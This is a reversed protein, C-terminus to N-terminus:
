KIFRFFWSGLLCAHLTCCIFLMLTVNSQWNIVNLTTFIIAILYIQMWKQSLMTFRAERAMCLICWIVTNYLYTQKNRDCAIWEQSCGWPLPKKRACGNKSVGWPCSYEMKPSTKVYTSLIQRYLLYAISPLLLPYPIDTKTPLTLRLARLSGGALRLNSVVKESISLWM